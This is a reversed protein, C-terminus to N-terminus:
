FTADALNSIFSNWAPPHHHIVDCVLATRKAICSEVESGGKSNAMDIWMQRDSERVSSPVEHTM